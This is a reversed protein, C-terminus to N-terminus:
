RAARGSESVNPMADATERYIDETTEREVSGAFDEVQLVRMVVTNGEDSAVMGLRTVAIYGIRSLDRVEAVDRRLAINDQRTREMSAVMQKVTNEASRVSLLRSVTTCSCFFLVLLIVILAARASVTRYEHGSRRAFSASARYCGALDTGADSDPLHAADGIGFYSTSGATAPNTNRYRGTRINM